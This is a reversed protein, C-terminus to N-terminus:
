EATEKEKAILDKERALEEALEKERVLYKERALALIGRKLEELSYYKYKFSPPPRSESLDQKSLYVFIKKQNIKQLKQLRQLLEEQKKVSYGCYASLDFVYIIVEALETMVLEAQMEIDNMEKRDLTGPVDIVQVKLKDAILYGTNISKTTFAYAAVKAKTATLKNLLTTKGVNPFGYICVTFMEKIDPFSRMIKRSEELYTLNSSIQKLVSSVRGYFQRSVDGISKRDKTLNIKSVFEKQFFRIKKNAWNLAALSKRLQSPELTLEMLRLYFKPLHEIDPFTQIIKEMRTVLVDKIIDLKLSEKKRIIQLWNGKLDKLKGQERAKKFAHDLLAKSSDVPPIKEFNM